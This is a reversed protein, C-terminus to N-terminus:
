RAEDSVDSITAESSELAEREREEDQAMQHYADELDVDLIHPKVLEQIFQSIRDRGVVSHLGECVEEDITITFKKQM